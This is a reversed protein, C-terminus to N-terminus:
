IPRTAQRPWGPGVAMSVQRVAFSLSAGPGLPAGFDAAQQAATYIVQPTAANLTRLVAGSHSALITVAYSEVEEGLPVEFGEWSDAEPARSRRTWTLTIDGTGPNRRARLHAPAFPRLGIGHPTFQTETYSGDTLPRSAPGARFTRPQGLGALPVPLRQCAADIVILPSGSAAGMAGETGRQGRLLQRLRYQGPGILTAERAQLLEWGAPGEVALLNAGALLDLETTSTLTGHDLAIDLVTAHDWRGLPGAPLATLLRGIRARRPLLTLLEFGDTGTSAYLAVNGPWPKTSAAVLPQHAADTETLAPLDLFRLDPPAFTIPRSVRAAVAGGPALDHAERDEAVAEILRSDSDAIRTIRFRLSRGDHDLALVDGPDLALQSPPLRFSATERGAWVEVLARRCRREAEEPPVALPFSDSAIRASAVTIRRAEVSTMDYDGDSRSIQWKLAQPLESEQARTLELAEGPPNAVLEGMPLGEGDLWILPLAGESWDLPAGADTWDLLGLGHALPDTTIRAVPARGRLAFRIRGESETADFGFHRALMTLTARPADLGAIVLGEVQGWLGSTDIQADLLGASRCLDRVLAPLPVSGLRGTLSPGLPWTAADPWIDTLAPFAPHPRADWSRAACQALDLMPQGTLASSPTNVPDSWFGLMAELYSRQIADDRWGRSFHPLQTESSKPDVSVGPQNAGRDVAPCGFATFVVPKSQPVWATPTGREAGGPRDHHPNAWWSRIDKRRFVWPKGHTPDLIPTRVQALRDAESAYIWDFGEGGAVTSRLYVPDQPAAWGARADVHDFGDRWDSLPWDCQIGVFDINPDSWLPDLHFYLDNSGDAPRHGFGESGHAAYSIRTTPGLIARVEGALAKLAAVAPYSSAGSRITTLGPLDSGILFADVGGATACLQAHHLIMRRLGWAGEFFAAVQVAAAPTKDVSGQYGAAPSCTIRGSWPWAPQGLTTADESYPNPLANGPSIDMLIVPQVTVRLGRAKLEQIAEIVSADSPTGGWARRGDHLSVVQAGARTLGAVVWEPTTSKVASDVKPRIECAGARLDSGFWGVMLSVSEVLPLQAQLQDLSVVMDATDARANVNEAAADAGSRRVLSTALAFEGTGPGLTVARILGEATGPETLPRFVEFSLQPIRNGFRELALDEFVVYATGRYAPALGAPSLTAILPDPLQADNGPYWRWTVGTMDMPKADAWIRGIGTIGRGAPGGGGGNEGGSLITGGPGAVSGECLAVAFSCSYLYETTTVGGGGGKGGGQTTTRVEERFDTAWIVNGGIRMRGYLRPITGGETSSTVRLVDLRQGEVRQGPTLSAVILSDVVSGAASGIMGGITAGSLGLLTGGFSGGIATGIAGLVLSAM